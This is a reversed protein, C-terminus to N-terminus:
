MLQDQWKWELLIPRHCDQNATLATGLWSTLVLKWAQFRSLGWANTGGAADSYICPGPKQPAWSNFEDAPIYLRM